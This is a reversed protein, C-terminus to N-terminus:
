ARRPRTWAMMLSHPLPRAYGALVLGSKAAWRELAHSDYLRLRVSRHPYCFRYVFGGISRHPVEVVLRGGEAVHRALNAVCREADDVFDLVGFCLVRDFTRGLELRELDAVMAEEVDPRVQEVLRPVLDTACVRLGAGQLLRAHVGLGCGVELLTQGKAPQLLELVTRIDRRELWGAIGRKRRPRARALRHYLEFVERKRNRSLREHM